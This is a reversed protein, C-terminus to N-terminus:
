HQNSLLIVQSIFSKLRPIYMIQKSINLHYRAQKRKYRGELLEYKLNRIKFKEEFHDECVRSRRRITKKKWNKFDM